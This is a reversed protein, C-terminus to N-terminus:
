HAPATGAGARSLAERVRKDLKASGCGLGKSLTRVTGEVVEGRAGAQPDEGVYVPRRGAAATSHKTGVTEGSKRARLTADATLECWAARRLEKNPEGPELATAISDDFRVEEIANTLVVDLTLEPDAGAPAPAIEVTRFCSAALKAALARELDDRLVDSGAQAGWTVHLAVTAPVPPAGNARADLGAVILALGVARRAIM